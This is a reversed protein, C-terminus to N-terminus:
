LIRKRPFKAVQRRAQVSHNSLVQFTDSTNDAYQRKTPNCTIFTENLSPDGSFMRAYHWYNLTSQFEGSIRNLMSGTRYSDYRNQYGFTGAPTTHDAYVEQNEIARDGILELEKTFYDEKDERLFMRPIGDAYIAKPVMSVLCLRITHEKIFKVSRRSRLAGIGHGRLSGVPSNSGDDPGGTSLVESWNLVKKGGSVYEPLWDAKGKIGFAWNLYEVYRHGRENLNEAYRQLAMYERLTNVPIGTAESLDALIKPYGGSAATGEYTLTTANYFDYTRSGLDSEYVTGSPGTTYAQSGAQGIGIVPATTGLPVTIETGMQPYPRATTLFDKEWAVKKIAYSTSDAGDSTDVTLESVLQSDRYFNNYILNYARFPLASVKMGKGTYDIVPVGMYDYISSESVIDTNLSIYPHTQTDATGDADFGTIFEGFGEWILRYPVDFIHARFMVPHMIPSLPVVGCRILFSSQQRVTDGPLLEQVYAPILEGM